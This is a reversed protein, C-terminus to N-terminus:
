QGQLAADSGWGHGPAAGAAGKGQVSVPTVGSLSLPCPRGEQGGARGQWAWPAAEARLHGQGTGLGACGAKTVGCGSGPTPSVSPVRGGSDTGRAAELWAPCPQPCLIDSETDGDEGCRGRGSSLGMEGGLGEIPPLLKHGPSLPSVGLTVGQRHCRSSRPVLGPVSQGGGPATGTGEAAGPAGRSRKGGRGMGTEGRPPGPLGRSM